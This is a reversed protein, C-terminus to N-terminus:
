VFYLFWPPPKIKIKLYQIEPLVFFGVVQSLVFIIVREVCKRDLNTIKDFNRHFYM